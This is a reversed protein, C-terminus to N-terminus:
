KDGRLKLVKTSGNKHTLVVHGTGITKVTYGTNPIEDDERLIHGRGGSYILAIKDHEKQFVAGLRVEESVISPKNETVNDEESTEFSYDTAESGAGKKRYLMPINFPNKEATATRIVVQNDGDDQAGSVTDVSKGTQVPLTATTRSYNNSADENKPKFVYTSLLMYIIIPTGVILAVWTLPSMKQPKGMNAMKVGGKGHTEQHPKTLAAKM